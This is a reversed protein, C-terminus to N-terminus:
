HASYYVHGLHITFHSEFEQMETAVRLAERIGTGWDGAMSIRLSSTGSHEHLLDYIASTPASTFPPFYDKQHFVYALYNRVWGWLAIPSFMWEPPYNPLSAADTAVHLQALSASRENVILDQLTRRTRPGTMIEGRGEGLTERLM